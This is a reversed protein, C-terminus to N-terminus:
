PEAGAAVAQQIDHAYQKAQQHIRMKQVRDIDSRIVSLVDADTSEWFRLGTLSHIFTRSRCLTCSVFPAMKKTLGMLAAKPECCSSCTVAYRQSNDNNGFM